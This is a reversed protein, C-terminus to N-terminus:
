AFWNNRTLIGSHVFTKIRSKKSKLFLFSFSEMQRDIFLQLNSMKSMHQCTLVYIQTDYDYFFSMGAPDKERGYMAHQSFFEERGYPSPQWFEGKRVGCPMSFPLRLKVLRLPTTVPVKELRCIHRYVYATIHCPCVKRFVQHGYINDWEINRSFFSASPPGPLDKWLYFSSFSASLVPLCNISLLASM